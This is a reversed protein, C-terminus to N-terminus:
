IYVIWTYFLCIDNNLWMIVIWSNANWYYGRISITKYYKNYFVFISKFSKLYRNISIYYNINLFFSIIFSFLLHGFVSSYNLELILVNERLIVTPDWCMYMCIHMYSVLKTNALWKNSTRKCFLQVTLYISRVYITAKIIDLIKSWSYM